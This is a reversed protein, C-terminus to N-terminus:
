GQWIGAKLALSTRLTDWHHTQHPPPVVECLVNVLGQRLNGLDCQFMRILFVSHIVGAKLLGFTVAVSCKSFETPTRTSVSLPVVKCFCVTGVRRVKCAYARLVFVTLSM